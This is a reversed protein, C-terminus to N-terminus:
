GVGKMQMRLVRQTQDMIKVTDSLRMGAVWVIGKQDCLLPIRDRDYYPAHENILFHKLKVAQQLGLPVFRDGPQRTRLHLPFTISNADAVEIWPNERISDLDVTAIPEITLVLTGAGDQLETEGLDVSMNWSSPPAPSEPFVELIDGQMRIRTSPLFLEGHAQSGLALHRMADVHALSIGTLDSHVLRVCERLVLRQVSDPLGILRSRSISIADDNTALAIEVLKERVLFAVAEDLDDLLDANRSLAETIRPNILRLEPLVHHRIRNRAFTPDANTADECWALSHALAYAHIAARNVRILPRIFPLRVPPIGRLGTPGAGRALRYLITEAHDDLTHGLAIRTAGAEEALGELAALRANRAAGERGQSQHTDLDSSTLAYRLLPLGVATAMDQVFQSDKKSAIGRLGHDIHGVVVGFSREVSLTHLVHFMVISDLGGSVAVLVRVGSPIMELDNLAQRASEMVM